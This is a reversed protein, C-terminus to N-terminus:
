LVEMKPKITANYWERFMQTTWGTPHVYKRCSGGKSSNYYYVPHNFKDAYGQAISDGRSFSGLVPHEEYYLLDQITEDDWGKGHTYYEGIVVQTYCRGRVDVGTDKYLGDSGVHWGGKLVFQSGDVLEFNLHAGGFGQGGSNSPNNTVYINDAADQQDAVLWTNGSKGIYAHYKRIVADGQGSFMQYPTIKWSCGKATEM